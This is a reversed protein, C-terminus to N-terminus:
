EKIVSIDIGLTEAMEENVVVQLTDPYEAPVDSPEEGELIKIALQATQRGLAEYDAGYSFLVGSEVVDASGGVVPIKMEKSLDTILSISSVITNDTPIFLVETQNMLSKATDQVDNTSSIGKVVTEIGAAKFAKKAEDVQVESNRENTTYMIGVKKVDPLVEQLLEVQKDIPSLDSTGTVNAGPKKMSDVLKASVPDTVATFLVPLDSTATALAQAAPTAIGLVLDNDQVLSESITQLNAQDGQANEYDIVINDGDVYGEKKLEDIFGKRAATLSEHEVYQLIGIHKADSAATKASDSKQSCGALLLLAFGLGLVTKMLRKM